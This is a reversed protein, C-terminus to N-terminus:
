NSTTEFYRGRTQIHYWSQMAQWHFITAYWFNWFIRTNTWKSRVFKLRLCFGFKEWLHCAFSLCGPFSLRTILGNDAILTAYRFNDRCQELKSHFNSGFSSGFKNVLNRNVLSILRLYPRIILMIARLISYIYIRLTIAIYISLYSFCISFPWM